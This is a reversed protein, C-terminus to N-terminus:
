ITMPIIITFKAGRYLNENHVFDVNEVSITGHMHKEIIELVMYLGIGTGDSKYKTTFYPEFIKNIIDEPIGQANDKITIKLNNKDKSLKSEIFIFKSEIEDTFADKANNILNILVQILDNEYSLISLDEIDEIVIIKKDELEASVLVLTKDILKQMDIDEKNERPTFFNKFNEITQSLYQTTDTISDISKYFMEDTLVNFEKQMKMGSSATSILSLPQRWQHAINAIMEGMAAMKSQHFLLKDKTKIETVDIISFLLNKVKGKHKLLNATIFANFQTGDEKIYPKELSYTTIKQSILDAFNQDENKLSKKQSISHWSQHLLDNKNKYGLMQIFKTNINIFKGNDDCIALGINSYEFLNRFEKEEDQIRLKYNAFITELYKSIIISLILLIITISISIIIINIFNENNKKMLKEKTRNILEILNKNGYGTGFVWGWKDYGQVFSTIEYPTKSFTSSYYSLFGDGNKGITILKKGYEMNNIDKINLINEGLLKLNQHVLIKGTYDFVFINGDKNFKINQIYELVRKKLENEYDDIYEGTGIALELPEFYKYFSIRKYPKKDKTNKYWYHTDYRESQNRITQMITQKFKYGNIDELQSLNTNEVSKNLPELLNIGNIDDMFFYGLGNNYIMSGLASKILTLIEQNTKTYKNDDYIRTAIADAEYVRIKIAEKLKIERNKDAQEIYNYIRSVEEKLKTNNFNLYFEKTLKIQEELQSKNSKEM